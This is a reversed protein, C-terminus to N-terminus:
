PHEIRGIVEFLLKLAGTRLHSDAACRLWPQTIGHISNDDEAGDLAPSSADGIHSHVDVVTGHYEATPARKFGHNSVERRLGLGEQM